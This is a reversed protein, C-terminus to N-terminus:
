TLWCKNLSIFCVRSSGSVRLGIYYEGNLSSLPITVNQNAGAVSVSAVPNNAKETTIIIHSTDANYDTQRSAIANLTSFSTLDIKNRTFVLGYNSVLTGQNSLHLNTANRTLTGGVCEWGGTIAAVEDGNDYLTSGDWWDVWEGNQYSKVTKDVLAGGVYQKSSIPYVHIGNKKLANFAVDSETGTLIWVEGEAMNEPQTASFYYGAVPTDTNVWITNEKANAPQPNGVVKFNLGGSGGGLNGTGWGM